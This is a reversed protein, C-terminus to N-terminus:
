DSFASSMEEKLGSMYDRSSGRCPHKPTKDPKKGVNLTTLWIDPPREWYFRSKDM